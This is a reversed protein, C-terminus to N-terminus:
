PRRLKAIVSQLAGERREVWERYDTSDTRHAEVRTDRLAQDLYSLLQQREEETLTLTFAPSQTSATSM